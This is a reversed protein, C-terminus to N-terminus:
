LYKLGLGQQFQVFESLEGNRDAQDIEEILKEYTRPNKVLFYFVAM